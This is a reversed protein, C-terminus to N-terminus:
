EANEATSILTEVEPHQRFFDDVQERHENSVRAIEARWHASAEADGTFNARAANTLAPALAPVEKALAHSLGELEAAAAAQPLRAILAQLGVVLEPDHRLVLWALLMFAQSRPTRLNLTRAITRYGATDGGLVREVMPAFTAILDLLKRVDTRVNDLEADSTSTVLPGLKRDGVLDSLLRLDAESSGTFRPENGAIRDSRAHDLGLAREVLAGTTGPQPIGDEGPEDQDQYSAFRGTAVQLFVRAASSFGQRGVNRRITGLPGDVAGHEVAHYLADMHREADPDGADERALLESLEERKRDWRVATGVLLERAPGPLTGGDEWWLCWAITSFKQTGERKQLELVRLLRTTSGSPFESVTGKGRGLHRIRPSPILGARHLRGLRPDSLKFGATQAARHLQARPEWSEAQEAMTM